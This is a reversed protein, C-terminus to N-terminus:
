LAFLYMVIGLYSNSINKTFFFFDRKLVDVFIVIFGLLYLFRLEIIYISTYSFFISFSFLILLFFNKNILYKSM